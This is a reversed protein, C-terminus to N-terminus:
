LLLFALVVLVVVVQEVALVILSWLLISMSNPLNDVVPEVLLGDAGTIQGLQFFPEEHWVKAQEEIHM